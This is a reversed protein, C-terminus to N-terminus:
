TSASPKRRSSPRRLVGPDRGRSASTYTRAVGASNYVDTNHRSNRYLANARAHGAPDFDIAIKEVEVHDSRRKTVCTGIWLLLGVAVLGGAVSVRCRRLTQLKRPVFRHSEGSGGIIGTRTGKSMGAGNDGTNALAATPIASSSSPTVTTFLTSSSPPPDSTSSSTTSTSTPTTSTSTTSPTSSTSTTSSTTTTDVSSSSSSSPLLVSIPLGTQSSTPSDTSTPTSAFPFTFSPFQSSMVFPTFNPALPTDVTAQPPGVMGSDTATADGGLPFGDLGANRFHGPRRDNEPLPTTTPLQVVAPPVAANACRIWLSVVPLVAALSPGRWPQSRRGKM